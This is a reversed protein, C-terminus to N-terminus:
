SETEEETLIPLIDCRCNPHLPPGDGGDGPFDEELGVIVGDLDNCDDCYEDQAIIWQKGQVVGSAKYGELNGQVDAYASETRAITEARAPDFAYNDELAAALTDTSWGGEISEALTSQVMDRTADELQTILQASRERAYEAAKKHVQALQDETVEAIVQALATESGDAAMELLIEALDPALDTLEAFTLEKLMRKVGATTTIAKGVKDGLEKALRKGLASLADTMLTNIANVSAQVAKRNRDVRPTAKRLAAGLYKGVPEETGGEDPKSGPPKPPGGNPPPAMGFGMPPPPPKLKEQQEPTLPDLGLKERIEDVDMVSATKYGTLVKMQTEPSAEDDEEWRFEMDTYGFYKWIVYDVLNKVWNMVPLLGEAMASDQASEATARNMQKVFAQPSLSFAFCIVRALWEDYEGKLDPTQTATFSMGGPVFKAHRRSATNGEMISDWYEQFMKIQDPNWEPPVGIMAEPINGETYYQLQSIQRRIAINVTMIVQEVPSLGYVKHTRVNRPKYILEDRSYDVAPMGKLIQQYAVDPPLPTRGSQDIVRKVTTGDVLELSYLSGDNTMRPYLTAADVVLMDELLARLWTEWDHEQDPFAFFTRLEEVRPDQKPVEPIEPPKPAGTPPMPPAGAPLKPDTPQAPAGASPTPEATPAPTAQAQKAAEKAKAARAELKKQKEIEPKLGFTWRMKSMQDKRTEIALRLLDYNDALARMQGFVVVEGDRPSRRLNHTVPFDFQRGPVGEKDQAQPALPQGPGFWEKSPNGTIIFKVGQVVRDIISAEVPSKTGDGMRAGPTGGNKAM